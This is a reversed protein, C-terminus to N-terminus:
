TKKVPNDWSSSALRARSSSCLRWESMTCTFFFIRIFNVPTTKVESWLFSRMGNKTDKLNVGSRLILDFVAEVKREHKWHKLHTQGVVIGIQRGFTHRQQVPRPAVAGVGFKHELAVVVDEDVHSTQGGDGAADGGEVLQVAGAGLALTGYSNRTLIESGRWKGRLGAGVGGRRRRHVTCWQFFCYSRLFIIM